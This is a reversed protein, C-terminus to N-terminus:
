DIISILYFTSSTRNIFHVEDVKKNANIKTTSDHMM